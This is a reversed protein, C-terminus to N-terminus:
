NNTKPFGPFLYLKKRLTDQTVASVQCRHHKTGPAYAIRQSILNKVETLMDVVHETTAQESFVTAIANIFWTGSAERFAKMDKATSYAVLIDSDEPVTKNETNDAQNIHQTPADTSTQSLPVGPAASVRQM